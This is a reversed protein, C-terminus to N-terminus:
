TYMDSTIEVCIEIMADDTSAITFYSCYHNKNNLDIGATILNRPMLSYRLSSPNTNESGPSLYPQSGLVKPCATRVTNDTSDAASGEPYLQMLLDNIALAPHDNSSLEM